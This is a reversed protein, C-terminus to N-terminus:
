QSAARAAFRVALFSQAVRTKMMSIGKSGAAVCARELEFAYLNEPLNRRKM